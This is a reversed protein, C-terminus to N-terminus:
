PKYNYENESVINGQSDKVFQLRGFSDYAYNLTIGTINAISSVGILPKYTYTSVMSSPLANRLSSFSTQVLSGNNSATQLTSAYSSVQSYTANEIKAIAYQNNYGWIISTPMGGEPTYQLINGVSDYLDYTANKELQGINSINPFANPFKASYEYKPRVKNVTTVDKAYLTRNESIKIGNKFDETRIIDYQNANVLEQMLPESLLDKPYYIKQLSIGDTGIHEKRSPLGAFKSDYFLEQSNVINGSAFYETTTIKDLNYWKYNTYYVGFYYNRINYNMPEFGSQGESDMYDTYNDIQGNILARHASNRLFLKHVICNTVRGSKEPIEKYRYEKRMLPTFIGNILKFQKEELLTGNNMGTNSGKSFYLYNNNAYGIPDLVLEVDTNSEVSYSSEKGGNEFNDGGYSVTVYQYRNGVPTYITNVANSSVIKDKWYMTSYNGSLGCAYEHITNSLYKPYIKIVQSDFVDGISAFKNYYYRKTDAIKGEASFDKTKKVRMGLKDKVLPEKTSFMVYATALIFNPAAPYNLPSDGNIYQLRLVYNGLPNINSFAFIENFNQTTIDTTGPNNELNIEGTYDISSNLNDLTFRIKHQNSLPGRVTAIIKVNVTQLPNLISPQTFSNPDTATSLQHALKIIGNNGPTNYNVSLIRDVKVNELPWTEKGSEYEFETYGKTPYIVKTLIGKSAYTFVADRDAFNFPQLIVDDIRPIFNSNSTKGNFYGLHDQAYSFRPGLGIPDNYEFSYFNDISSTSTGFFNVNSLFLRQFSESYELDITKIISTGQYINISKLINRKIQTDDRYVNNFVIKDSNRNSSIEILAKEGAVDLMIESASLLNLREYFRNTPEQFADGGCVLTGSGGGGWDGGGYRKEYIQNYGILKRNYTSAYKFNVIDGNIDEIKYLYFCTTTPDSFLGIGTKSMTNESGLSSGFYHKIGNTDTILITFYAAQTDIIEIKIESNYNILRPILNEDLFFSGNYGLFNYNFIDAETDVEPLTLEFLNINNYFPGLPVFSALQAKSYFKRKINNNIYLNDPKDNVTRTIMGGAAMRWNIGTWGNMEDVKVGESTYNLSLPISIRGTNFKYIPVNVNALGSSENIPLGGYKTFSFASPTPPTIKSAFAELYPTSTQANGYLAIFLFLSLLFISHKKM